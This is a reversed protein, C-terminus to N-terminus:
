RGNIYEEILRGREMCGLEMRASVVLLQSLYPDDVGDLSWDLINGVQASAHVCGELLEDEGCASVSEMNESHNSANNVVEATNSVEFSSSFQPYDVDKLDCSSEGVTDEKM